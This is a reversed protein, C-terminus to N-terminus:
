GAKCPKAKTEGGLSALWQAIAEALIVSPEVLETRSHFFRGSDPSALIKTTVPVLPSISRGIARDYQTLPDDFLPSSFNTYYWIM